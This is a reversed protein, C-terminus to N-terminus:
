RPITVSFDLLKDSSCTSKRCSHVPLNVDDLTMGIFFLSLNVANQCHSSLKLSATLTPGVARFLVKCLTDYM